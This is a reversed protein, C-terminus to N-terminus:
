FGLPILAPTRRRYDEYEPFTERMRQEEVGIRRLFALVAFLVALLGRWEGIALATGILALLLGAYIPHRVLRYPGSRILTHGEKLSVYGSWNRGIHRRAWAAFGLGIAVLVAGSLPSAAGPAVFRALLPRPWLHPAAFLLACLVLPVRDVLRSAFSERWRTAKAFPAAALWYVCWAIWLAPIAFHLAM